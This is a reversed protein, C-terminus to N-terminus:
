RHHGSATKTDTPAHDVSAPHVRASHALPDRQHLPHVCRSQGGGNQRSRHTDPPAQRGGRVGSPTESTGPGAGPRGHAGPQDEDDASGPDTRGQVPPGGGGDGSGFEAGARFPRHRRRAAAPSGRRAPPQVWRVAVARSRYALTGDATCFPRALTVPAPTRPAQTCRALHASARCPTGPTPKGVDLPCSHGGSRQSPGGREDASM